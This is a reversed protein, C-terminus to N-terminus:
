AILERITNAHLAAVLPLSRAYGGALTVALPLGRRKCAAIVRRDRERLGAATLALRGFRDEAHPDVGALYCVLEPRADDLVRPLHEDLLALYRADDCGDPLGVDLRSQEKDFPYNRDSHMSFTYVEADAAFLRASGNGQHVDLDVIACRRLRGDRQLSRIAVAVDNFICFGEGRDAFAHHTGGGLHVGVGCDLADRAAEVTCQVAHLTRERVADTWPLGLRRLAAADLAGDFFADIWAREHVLALTERSVPGPEEIRAAPLISGEVVLERVLAFKGQPFRHGAPLDLQFRSASWARM